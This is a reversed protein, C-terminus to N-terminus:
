EDCIPFDGIEEDDDFDNNLSSSLVEKKDESIKEDVVKEDVTTNNANKKQKEELVEEFSIEDPNGLGSSEEDVTPDNEELTWSISYHDSKDVWKGGEFAKVSMKGSGPTYIYDIAESGEWSNAAVRGFAQYEIEGQKGSFCITIESGDDSVNHETISGIKYCNLTTELVKNANKVMNPAQLGSLHRLPEFQPTREGVHNLCATALDILGVLNKEVGSNLGSREFVDVLGAHVQKLAGILREDRQPESSSTVVRKGQSSFTAIPAHDLEEGSAIIEKEVESVRAASPAGLSRLLHQTMLDGSDFEAEDSHGARYLAALKEQETMERM